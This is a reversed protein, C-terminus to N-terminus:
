KGKVAVIWGWEPLVLTGDAELRADIASLVTEFGAPPQERVTTKSANVFTVFATGDPLSRRFAYVEKPHATTLFDVSADFLDPHAHRLSALRKVLAHRRRGRETLARRWNVHQNGFFRNSWINHPANDAIEQGNYIMPVGDLLFVTALMAECARPGCRVEYRSGGPAINSIDHNEFCHMWRYGRPYRRACDQYVSAVANANTSGALLGGLIRQLPFAYNLDFAAQQDVVSDGECLMVVDPKVAACRRHAEERFALPLMDGVDWRFGDAKFRSLLYTMNAFLYERLDLSDFDLEPFKWQGLKPTGDPNTRIWDPHEKLFVANPGCHFYVLDFLVKMGLAHAAAVFREADEPSGYEPDVAFYDKIRYPNRPNGLMSGRQRSSWFEQRMDDDAEFFPCLYIVDVGTEKLHPLMEEAAAFTGDTTFPRLFLQYLVSTRLFDPAPRVTKGAVNGYKPNVPVTEDASPRRRAEVADQAALSSPIWRFDFGPGDFVYAGDSSVASVGRALVADAALAGPTKVKAAVKDAAFHFACVLRSGDAGQRVFACVSAPRDTELWALSGRNLAPTRTRLRCLARVLEGNRAEAGADVAPVGDLAFAFALEVPDDPQTAFRVIRAGDPRNGKMFAWMRALEGLPKEGRKVARVTAPWPPSYEADFAVFQNRLNSNDAVLALNPREADLQRRARDWHDPSRGDAGKVRYGDPGPTARDGDYPAIVKLGLRHAERCYAALDEGALRSPGTVVATVGLDKLAALRDARAGDPAQYRYLVGETLWAPAIRAGPGAAVTVPVFLLGAWLLKKM